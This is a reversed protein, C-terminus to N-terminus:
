IFCFISFCCNRPLMRTRWAGKQAHSAHKFASSSRLQAFQEITKISVVRATAIAMSEGSEVICVRNRIAEHSPKWSFVWGSLGLLQEMMDPSIKVVTLLDSEKDIADDEGQPKNSEAEFGAAAEPKPLDEQPQTPAPEAKM